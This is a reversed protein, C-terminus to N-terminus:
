PVIFGEEALRKVVGVSQALAHDAAVGYSDAVEVIIEATSREGDLASLVELGFSDVPASWRMGGTRRLILVPDGQGAGVHQEVVVDPRLSWAKRLVGSPDLAGEDQVAFWREIEDAVPQSWEQPVHQFRRLPLDREGRRLSILGFGIARVGRQELGTLWDDYMQRYTPGLHEGADRLWMEVYEAPDQVERQIVWADIGSNAVWERPHRSWDDADTIEWNALLQCWGGEALHRDVGSVLHACVMDGAVGSDRYDHRGSSPSGIVFPPNCVVLDFREDDDLADFLSGRRLEVECDNLAANFRAFELCRASVDTAVVNRSHRALHFAQVGCGTGIDLANQAPHRVTCQALMMSAGGVGLVHDSATRRGTRRSSWDSAILWDEDDFSCPALDISARARGDTVSVFAPIDALPVGLAAGLDAAVVDEALMLARVLTALASNDDGIVRSAPVTEDRSLARAATEGVLRRVGEVTYDLAHLRVAIHAALDGGPLRM